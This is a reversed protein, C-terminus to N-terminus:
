GEPKIVVQLVQDRWAFLKMAEDMESEPIDLQLRMGDRGIKIASQIDPITALLVAPDPKMREGAGGAGDSCRQAISSM